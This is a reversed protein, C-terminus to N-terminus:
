AEWSFPPYATSMWYSYAVARGYWQLANRQIDYVGDQIRGTFLITFFNVVMCVKALLVLLLSIGLYPLILIAAVFPRWREVKVPHTAELRVRDGEKESLSFAPYRDDMLLVYAAVRIEWRLVGAMFDWLALPYRGVFLVAFFSVLAVLGAGIGLFFLAVYHPVALLWKVLPLLRNYSDQEEGSVSVPYPAGGEV